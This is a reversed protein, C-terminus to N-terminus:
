AGVEGVRLGAYAMVLVVARYRPLIAAALAEVEQVELPQVEAQVQNTVPVAALPSRDVLGESVALAFTRSLVNRAVARYGSSYGRERMSVLLQRVDGPSVADLQLDGIVPAIHKRTISAYHYRTSQRLDDAAGLTAEIYAALTLRSTPKRVPRRGPLSEAFTRADAELGFHRQKKRAQGDRWRVPVWRVAERGM